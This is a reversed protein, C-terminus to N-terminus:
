PSRLANIAAQYDYVVPVGGNLFEDIQTRFTLVSALGAATLDHAIVDEDVVPNSGGADYGSGVFIDTLEQIRQIVDAFSGIVDRMALATQVKRSAM